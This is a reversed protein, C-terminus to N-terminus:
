RASPATSSRPRLEFQTMGAAPTFAFESEAPEVAFNWNSLDAIFNPRGPLTRYVIHVRRPLAQDNDEVWLELDLDPLQSFFFHRCRVGDITATGVQGGSVIDSLLSETPNDSILDALPFDMGLKEILLDVIRSVSGSATVLGYQQEHGLLAVNKGDYRIKTTGDDGVADVALRDPRRVTTKINHQIHLLQGNPGAYARITRAQFSFKNASLTKGMKEMMAIVDAALPPAVAAPSSQSGVIQTQAFTPLPCFTSVAALFGFLGVGFTCNWQWRRSM